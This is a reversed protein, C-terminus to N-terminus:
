PIPANWDTGCIQQPKTSLGLHTHTKYLYSPCCHWACLSLQFTKCKSTCISPSCKPPVVSKGVMKRILDNGGFLGFTFVHLSSPLRFQCHFHLNNDPLGLSATQGTHFGVLGAPSWSCWGGLTCSSHPSFICGTFANLSASQTNLRGVPGCPAFHHFVPRKLQNM